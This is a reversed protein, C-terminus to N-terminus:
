SSYTILYEPYARGNEYIMYVKSGGTEGSVSDYYETFGMVSNTSKQPPKRLSPDNPMIHICDGVLVRTFFIQSKKEPTTFRYHHSYSANQAFYIAIGWMGSSCYRMDFGSEDNFIQSPLTTKTGHFLQLENVGTSNKKEMFSKSFQYKEWLWKNQIRQIIEIKANPLTEKIRTEISLWEKSSPSVLKLECNTTQPVWDLPFHLNSASNTVNKLVFDLIEQKATSVSTSIGSISAEDNKVNFDLKADNNTCIDSIEKMQKANLFFPFKVDIKVELSKMKKEFLKEIMPLQQIFSHLEIVHQTPSPGEREDEFKFNSETLNLYNKMDNEYDLYRRQIPYINGSPTELKMTQFHVKVNENNWNISVFPFTHKNALSLELHNSTATGLPIWRNKFKVEWIINSSLVRQQRRILRPNSRFHTNIETMNDFDIEYSYNNKVKKLDGTVTVKGRHNQKIYAVEIQYNQDPDFNIFEGNNERWSWQYAVEFSSSMSAVKEVPYTKEKEKLVSLYKNLMTSDIDCFRICKISKSTDNEAFQIASDILIQACDDKPFGYIGSSISPLAIDQFKHQSALKLSSFVCSKLYEKEGRIGGSWIPGVTHIIGQFPLQGATTLISQGTPLKHHTQIYKQCEEEMKKGAKKAIHVAIGGSHQLQENAANVICEAKEKVIDGQVILIKTGSQRLTMEMLIRNENTDPFAIFIKEEEWIQNALEFKNRTLESYYAGSVKIRKAGIEQSLKKLLDGIKQVAGQVQDNQGRVNISKDKTKENFNMKVFHSTIINELEKKFFTKLFRIQILSIPILQSTLKKNELLAELAEKANSIDEKNRGIFKVHQKERDFYIDLLNWQQKFDQANSFVKFLAHYNSPKWVEIEPKLKEFFNRIEQIQITQPYIIQVSNSYNFETIVISIPYQQILEDKLNKIDHRSVEKEQYNLTVEKLNEIQQSIFVQAKHSNTPSGVIMLYKKEGNDDLTVSKLRFEMQISELFSKRSKLYQYQLNSLNLSTDRFFSRELFKNFYNTGNDIIEQSFSKLILKKSANLITVVLFQKKLSDFRINKKIFNLKDASLSIVKKKNELKQFTSRVSETSNDFHWISVFVNVDFRSIPKKNTSGEQASSVESEEDDTFSLQDIKSTIDSSENDEEEEESKPNNNSSIKKLNEKTLLGPATEPEHRIVQIICKEGELLSELYSQIQFSLYKDFAKELKSQKASSRIKEAQEKFKDLNAKMGTAIIVKENIIIKKVGCTEKCTELESMLYKKLFEGEGVFLPIALKIEKQQKIHSEISELANIVSEREGFVELRGNKFVIKVEFEQEFEEKNNPLENVQIFKSMHNNRLIKLIEFASELTNEPGCMKLKFTYQGQNHFIKSLISYYFDEFGERKLQTLTKQKGYELFETNIFSWEFTGGKLGVLLNRIEQEAEDLSDGSILIMHKPVDRKNQTQIPEKSKIQISVSYRKKIDSIEKLKIKKLYEVM